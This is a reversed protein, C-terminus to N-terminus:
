FDVTQEDTLNLNKRENRLYEEPWESSYKCILKQVQSESIKVATQHMARCDSTFIESEFKNTTDTLDSAPLFTGHSIGFQAASKKHHIRFYNLYRLNADDKRIHVAESTVRFVDNDGDIRTTVARYRGSNKDFYLHLVGLHQLLHQSPRDSEASPRTELRWFGEIYDPGLIWKRASKLRIIQESIWVGLAIGLLSKLVLESADQYWFRGLDFIGGIGVLLAVIGSSLGIRFNTIRDM